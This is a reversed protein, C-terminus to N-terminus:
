NGYILIQFNDDEEILGYSTNHKIINHDFVFAFVYEYRSNAYTVNSDGSSINITFEIYDDNDNSNVITVNVCESSELYKRLAERSHNVVSLKGTISYATTNNPLVLTYELVGYDNSLGYSNDEFYIKSVKLSSSCEVSVNELNSVEYSVLNDSNYENDRTSYWAAYGLGSITLVAVVIISLFLIRAKKGIFM